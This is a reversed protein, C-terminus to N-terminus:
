KAKETEVEDLIIYPIEETATDDPDQIPTTVQKLDEGKKGKEVVKKITKTRKKVEKKPTTTNPTLILERMQQHFHPNNVIDKMNYKPILDKKKKENPKQQIVKNVNLLQGPKFPQLITQKGKETLPVKLPGQMRPQIITGPNRQIIPIRQMGQTMPQEFPNTQIQSMGIPVPIGQIIPQLPQQYIPYQQPSQLPQFYINQMINEQKPKIQQEYNINKHQVKIPVKQMIPEKKKKKTRTNEIEPTISRQIIRQEEEPIFIDSKKIEIEKKEEFYEIDEYKEIIKHRKGM